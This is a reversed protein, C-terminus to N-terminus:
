FSSTNSVSNHSRPIIPSTSYIVQSNPLSSSETRSDFSLMEIDEELSSTSTEAVIKQRCTLTVYIM